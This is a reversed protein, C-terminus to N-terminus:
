RFWTLVAPIAALGILAAWLHIFSLVWGAVIALAIALAAQLILMVVPYLAAIVPGKRLRMLRRLAGSGIYTWATRAMQVYTGIIGTTMSTRVIDSWVLVEFDTETTQSQIEADVHWGYRGKTTKPTLHLNYGSIGAQDRGESRYLERYRRPHIPDYGPIYFVRRRKVQTQQM